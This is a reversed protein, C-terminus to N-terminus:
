HAVRNPCKHDLQFGPAPAVDIDSPPRLHFLEATTHTVEHPLNSSESKRSLPPFSAKM